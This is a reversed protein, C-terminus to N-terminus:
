FDGSAGGGGSGGGFGSGFEPSGAQSAPAIPHPSFLGLASSAVGLAHKHRGSMNAATFGHRVGDPGQALWRRLWVAVAILAIGLLMPDWTHRQWGLYPKNTVLTLVMSIMGAALLFRDKRRVGRALLIPPLCWLLVWTTWYFPAAFESTPHMNTWLEAPSSIASLKLNLVLYIGLWLFAEALSYEQELYDFRHRSRIAAICALAAAYLVCIWCRQWTHSPTWYGPLFLTFIMAAPFAYWLDFRYWIWLSFGAGACCVLFMVRHESPLGSDSFLSAVSSCALAVSGIALGEEIGYRYLRGGTVAAEASMYCFVSFGLLCIGIFSRSPAAGALLFFLGVAAGVAVLTFLLLVLRLFINTTRLDSVTDQELQEYQEKSVLGDDNWQTVLKRARLSEQTSETYLKM